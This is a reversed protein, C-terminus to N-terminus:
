DELSEVYEKYGAVGPNINEYTDITDDKIQDEVHVIVRYEEGDYAHVFDSAFDVAEDPDDFEEHCEVESESDSWVVYRTELLERYADVGTEYIDDPVFVSCDNGAEIEGISEGTEEDYEVFELWEQSEPWNLKVYGM